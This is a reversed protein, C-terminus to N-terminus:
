SVMADSKPSEAEGTSEEAEHEDIEDITELPEFVNSLTFGAVDDGIDEDSNM